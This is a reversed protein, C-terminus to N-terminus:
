PVGGGGFSRLDAAKVERDDFGGAKGLYEVAVHQEGTDVPGPWARYEVEDGVGVEDRDDVAADEDAGSFV